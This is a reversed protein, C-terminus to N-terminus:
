LDVVVISMIFLGVYEVITRQAANLPKNIDRGRLLLKLLICYMICCWLFIGLKIWVLFTFGFFIRVFSFSKTSEYRKFEPFLDNLDAETGDKQEIITPRYYKKM